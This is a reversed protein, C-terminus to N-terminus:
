RVSRNGALVEKYDEYNKKLLEPINLGYPCKPLCAGCEICQKTKEMEAQWHESLWSESPARRLMLSMRNCQNIQINVTCPM